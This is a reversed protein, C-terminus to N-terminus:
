ANLTSKWAYLGIWAEVCANSFNCANATVELSLGKGEAEEAIIIINVKSGRLEM